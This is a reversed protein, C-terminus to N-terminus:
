NGLFRKGDSIACLRGLFRCGLIMWIYMYIVGLNVITTGM